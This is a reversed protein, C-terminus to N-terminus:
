FFLKNAALLKNEHDRVEVVMLYNGSPLDTIDFDAYLVTVPKVSERKFRVFKALQRQTEYNEIFYNLLYQSDTGLVNEANYVEAYFRVNNIRDPYFNYVYPALDFGSKTLINPESIKTYSEVLEIGSISIKDKHFDIEITQSTKFSPKDSNVDKIQIEYDYIGNLLSFREQDQFNLSISATDEVEPSLLEYKDYNVVVSDKSFIMTIEIPGLFKQTDNIAFEVNSVVVSLYPEFYPGDTPFYFKYHFLQAQVYGGSYLQSTSLAFLVEISLILTKIYCLTWDLFTKCYILSLIEPKLRNILAIRILKNM